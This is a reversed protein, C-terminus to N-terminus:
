KANIMETKRESGRSSGFYYTLVTTMGGSLMGLLINFADRNDTPVAQRLLAFLMYFFAANFTLALAAPVWDRLAIERARANARDEVSLKELQIGTEAIFKSFEIEAVRLREYVEPSAQLVAKEVEAESADEKGLLAGALKKVVSQAMPGGLAQAITPAV